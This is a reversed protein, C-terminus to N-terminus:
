ANAGRTTERIHDVYSVCSATLFFGRRRLQVPQTELVEDSSTFHDGPQPLWDLSRGWRYVASLTECESLAVTLASMSVIPLDAARSQQGGFGEIVVFGEVSWQDAEMPDLSLSRLIERLNGRLFNRKREIQDVKKACTSLRNFVERPDGPRLMWACELALLLKAERDILLLDVEERQGEARFTKNNEHIPWRSAADVLKAIMGKEFMDSQRDFDKKQTRATLSLINRQMDNSIIFNCPLMYQGNAARVLPQLAIDPSDSLRGLTLFDIFQAIRDIGFDALYALDHILEDRSIVLVLSSDFGGPIQFKKTAFAICLIHYVCRIQLSNILAQTDHGSGWAFTFDNPIVISRQPVIQSLLYIGGVEYQYIVRGNRVRTSPEFVADLAPNDDTGRLLGFVLTTIDYMPEQGHNLMELASYRLDYEPRYVIQHTGQGNIEITSLGAHLSSFVRVMAAHTLGAFILESSKKYTKPDTKKPLPYSDAFKAELLVKQACHKMSYKLEDIFQSIENSPKNITEDLHMRALDECVTLLHWLSVDRITHPIPTSDFTADM